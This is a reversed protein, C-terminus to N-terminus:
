VIGCWLGVQVAPKGLVIRDPFAAGLTFYQVCGFRCLQTEFILLIAQSENLGASAQESVQLIVMSTAPFSINSM